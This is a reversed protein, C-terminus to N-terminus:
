FRSSFAIGASQSVANSRALASYNLGVSWNRMVYDLSAGAVLESRDAAPGSIVFTSAPISAFAANIKGSSATLGRGWGALLQPV